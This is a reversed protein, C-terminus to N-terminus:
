LEAGGPAALHAEIDFGFFAVPNSPTEGEARERAAIAAKAKDFAERLSHAEPLADRYFAEGFYTLDSDSSCGFSTRDPAAATIVVTHPDRLPEIFGGAYCASIIIVRWKIGSQRLGDVLDAPTLDILPFQSNSVEIVPEESGHSSIALFLVDRDKQMRSALNELAYQLGSVSAVPAADLDREDNILSLKRDGLQYREGIVRSALGVEQAFVKEAGVGAFGLFFAQPRASADRHIADLAADIRQAQEFQATERDALEEDSPATQADRPNWVDPIANTLNSLVAFGIIFATGLLAGVRQSRGTLARLARVLYLATYICVLLSACWFARPELLVAGVTLLLVYLPVLGISLAVAPAFLLTSRSVWCMLAALGLVGLVHWALVPVGDAFFEPDPGREWWDVGVWLALCVCSLALILPIPSGTAAADRRSLRWFRPMAKFWSLSARSVRIGPSRHEPCM